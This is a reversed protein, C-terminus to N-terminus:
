WWGYDECAVLVLIWFIFIVEVGCMLFFFYIYIIDDTKGNAMQHWTLLKIQKRSTKKKKTHVRSLSGQSKVANAATYDLYSPYQPIDLTHYTWICHLPCLVWQTVNASCTQLYFCWYESKTQGLLRRLSQLRSLCFAADVHRRDILGSMGCNAKTCYDPSKLRCKLNNQVAKCSICLDTFM